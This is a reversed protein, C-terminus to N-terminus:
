EPPEDRRAPTHDRLVGAVAIAYGVVLAIGALLLTGGAAAVIDAPDHGLDPVRGALLLSIATLALTIVVLSMVRPDRLLESMADTDPRSAGIVVFIAAFGLVFLSMFM